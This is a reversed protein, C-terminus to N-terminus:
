PKTMPGWCCSLPLFLPFVSLPSKVKRIRDQNPRFPALISLFAARVQVIKRAILDSKMLEHLARNTRSLHIYDRDDLLTAILYFVDLPLGDLSAPSYPDAM